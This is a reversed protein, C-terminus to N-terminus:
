INGLIKNNKQNKEQNKYIYLCKLIKFDFKQCKGTHNKERKVDCKFLDEKKVEQITYM